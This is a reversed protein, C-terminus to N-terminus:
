FGSLNGSTFVSENAVFDVDSGTAAPLNGLADAPLNIKGAAVMKLWDIADKYRKQVQDIMQDEYLYYRTIDCAIRVLNAPVVALPLPYATLYANIEADADAIAQDLVAYDIGGAQERDTIQTLESEGFRDILQQATCYSM